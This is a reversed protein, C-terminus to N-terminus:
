RGVEVVVIVVVIVVVVDLNRKRRLNQFLNKEKIRM